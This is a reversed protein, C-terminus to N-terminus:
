YTAFHWTSHRAFEVEQLGHAVMAAGTAGPTLLAMM